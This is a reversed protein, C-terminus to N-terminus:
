VPPEFEPIVLDAVAERGRDPHKPLHESTRDLPDAVHMAHHGRYTGLESSKYWETEQSVRSITHAGLRCTRSSSSKPQSGAGLERPSCTPWPVAPLVAAPVQLHLRKRAPPRPGHPLSNIRAGLIHTTRKVLAQPAHLQLRTPRLYEQLM